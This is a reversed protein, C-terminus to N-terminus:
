GLRLFRRLWGLWGAPRRVPAAAPAPEAPAVPASLHALLRRAAAEEPDITLARELFSRAGGRDGRALAVRAMGVLAIANRADADAVQTYLREAHDLEGRELAADAALLREIM